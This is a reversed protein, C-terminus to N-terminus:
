QISSELQQLITQLNVKQNVIGSKKRINRRHTYVTKDSINLLSAIEKSSHGNKILNAVQIEAPTLKTFLNSIRHAFPSSIQRLNNEISKILNEQSPCTNSKHLKSFFPLVLQDVNQQFIQNIEEKDIERQKLLVRLAANTEELEESRKQLHQRTEVSESIDRAILVYGQIDNDKGHIGFINSEIHSSVSGMKRTYTYSFKGNNKIHDTVEKLYELDIGEREIINVIGIKKADKPTYGLLTEATKNSHLIKYELDTIVFAMDTASDMMSELIIKDDLQKRVKQLQVVQTEIVEKLLNIYESQLGKIIDTETVIGAIQDNEDTIVLRRIGSKKIMRAASHASIYSSVTQVPCSMVEKLPTTYLDTEAEILRVIDRETIIGAPRSNEAIVISSINNNNMLQMADYLSDGQALSIVNQTIVEGIDDFSVFYELGLNHLLDTETAIGILIGQNDVVILHRINHQMFLLYAENISIESNATIPKTVIIESITQKPNFSGAIVLRLLSRETFIGLPFQGDVIVTASIKHHKLLAVAESIQSEPAVTVVPSSMVSNLNIM